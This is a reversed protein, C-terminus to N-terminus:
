LLISHLLPPTTDTLRMRTPQSLLVTRMIPSFPDKQQICIVTSRVVSLGSQEGFM